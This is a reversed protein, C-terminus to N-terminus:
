VYWQYKAQEKTLRDKKPAECVRLTIGCLVRIDHMLLVALGRFVSPM